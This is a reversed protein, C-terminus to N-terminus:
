YYWDSQIGNRCNRLLRPSMQFWLASTGSVSPIPPNEFEMLEIDPGGTTVSAVKLKFEPLGLIRDLEMM